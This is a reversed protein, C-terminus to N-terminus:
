PANGLWHRRLWWKGCLLHRGMEVLFDFRHDAEDSLMVPLLQLKSLNSLSNTQMWAISRFEKTFRKPDRDHVVERLITNSM